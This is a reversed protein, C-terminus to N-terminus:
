VAPKIRIAQVSKSVLVNVATTNRGLRSAKYFNWPRLNELFKIVCVAVAEGIYMYIYIYKDIYRIFILFKMM